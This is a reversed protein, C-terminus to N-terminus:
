TGITVVSLPFESRGDLQLLRALEDDYFEARATAVLGLSTAAVM